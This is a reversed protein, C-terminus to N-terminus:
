LGDYFIGCIWKMLNLGRCLGRFMVIVSEM